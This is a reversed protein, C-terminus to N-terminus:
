EKIKRLGNFFDTLLETCAEEEIGAYVEVKHNLEGIQFIDAVSGAAGARM